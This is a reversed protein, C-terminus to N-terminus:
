FYDPLFNAFFDQASVSIETWTVEFSITLIPFYKLLKELKTASHVGVSVSVSIFYCTGLPANTYFFSHVWKSHIM